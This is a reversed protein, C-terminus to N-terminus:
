ESEGVMGDPLTERSEIRTHGDRAVVLVIEESGRAPGDPARECGGPVPIRLAYGDDREEVGGYNCSALSFGDRMALFVAEAKTDITGFFAVLEDRTTVLSVDDGRAVVLNSVTFGGPERGGVRATGSCHLRWAKGDFVQPLDTKPCREASCYRIEDIRANAIANPTGGEDNVTITSPPRADVSFFETRWAVYDIREAPNFAVVLGTGIPGDCTYLGPTASGPDSRDPLCAGVLTFPLLVFPARM